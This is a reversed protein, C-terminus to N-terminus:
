ESLIAEKRSEVNGARDVSWYALTHIGETSITVTTGTQEASGDLTFRSAAVGSSNDTSTLNVTVDHNVWDQPANDTTIPAVNDFTLRASNSYASEGVASAATVKFYYTTGNMLGNDTYTASTVNTAIRNFSGNEAM